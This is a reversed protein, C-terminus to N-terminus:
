WRVLDGAGVVVDSVVAIVYIVVTSIGNVVAVYSVMKM